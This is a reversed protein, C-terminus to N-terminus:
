QSENAPHRPYCLLMLLMGGLYLPVYLKPDGRMFALVFGFLATAESFVYCLIYYTWAQTALTKDDMPEIPSYLGAIRVFRLYLVVSATVIGMLTLGFQFTRDPPTMSSDHVQTIVVPYLCLSFLMVAFVLRLTRVVQPPDMAGRQNLSV